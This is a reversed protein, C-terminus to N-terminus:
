CIIGRLRKEMEQLAESLRSWDRQAYFQKMGRESHSLYMETCMPDIQEIISAGTKRLSRFSRGSNINTKQQLRWFANKIADTKALEAQNNVSQRLLPQNNTSLLVRDSVDSSNNHKHERILDETIDWIKHKARVGTKSRNREIFGTEFNIEGARLESIERQTMGINLGLAIYCKTKSNANLWLTRIEDITFIKPNPQIHIKSPIRSLEDINRPMDQILRSKWSWRIFAKIASLCDQATRVSIPRHTKKSIPLSLLHNRFDDLNIETIISSMMKKVGFFRMFVGLHMKSDSVYSAGIEGNRHRSLQNALYKSAAQGLTANKTFVKVPATKKRDLAFEFYKREAKKYAPLDDPGSATGFSKVKGLGSVYKYWRGGRRNKGYAKWSLIKKTMAM